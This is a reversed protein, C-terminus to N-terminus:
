IRSLQLTYCAVDGPLAATRYGPVALLEGSPTFFLPYVNRETAPVKLEVLIDQVKRSGKFGRPRLRDGPQRSRVILPLPLRLGQGERTVTIKWIGFTYTGEGSLLLTGQPSPLCEPMRQWQWLALRQVRVGETVTFIEGIPLHLLAETQKRTLTSGLWFRIARRVLVPDTKQRILLGGPTCALLTQLMHRHLFAQEETLLDATANAGMTFHPLRPVVHLRLANRPISADTNSVDERWSVGRAQLWAVQMAHTEDLLPRMIQYEPVGPFVDCSTFSTLGELGCGRALRLVLNEARDDAHHALLLTKIGLRKMSAAFFAFRHRRAFVEKTESPHWEETCHWVELPIGREACLDRIFAEDENGLEDKFGHNFHLAVVSLGAEVCRLLLAVSDAGGSVGIAYVVNKKSKPLQMGM